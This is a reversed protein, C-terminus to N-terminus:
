RVWPRAQPAAVDIGGIGIVCRALQDVRGAADGGSLELDGDIGAHRDGAECLSLDVAPSNLEDM